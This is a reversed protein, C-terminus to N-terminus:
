VVMGTGQLRIAMLVNRPRDPNLGRGMARYYALLQLFPMYLVGRAPGSLSVQFDFAADCADELGELRNGLALVHGGRAKLDRLVGVEYDRLADSLLAVSLHAEDVLALPGHRFEMFHYAEATSLSMEKMKITAECALGYRAGSALYTIRQLAERTGWAQALPQARAILDPALAPLQWLEAILAQDDAVLAALMQAAVLMGAFSRTQAFSEERGGPLCVTLTALRALDTDAYCSITFAEAGQARLTQVAQVTESTQGSRSLAVVLPPPGPPVLAKTELWLESSPVGRAPLGTWRQFFAAAYQALAHTSGCGIFFVMRGANRRVLAVLEARLAWTAELASQWSEAQTTIEHFSFAGAQTM